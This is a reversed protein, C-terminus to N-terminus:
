FFFKKVFLAILSVGGVASLTVLLNPGDDVSQSANASLLGPDVLVTNTASNKLEEKNESKKGFTKVLNVAPEKENKNEEILVVTTSTAIVIREVPVMISNWSKGIVSPIVYSIAWIKNQKTDTEKLVGGNETQQSAFYDLPGKNNKKWDLGLINMAQVVWSTSSVNGWGGDEFQLNQLYLSARNISDMVSSVDRYQYLASIAAATMDVSEDWSGDAKQRSLIFKIDKLIVEDSSNYGSSSLPIIAFIDDSDLNSDGFQVGDFSKIIAEVYNVGNYSYPNQGLSLLAMAHRENETVFTSVTNNKSYYDLLKIESSSTTSASGLAIAAWDSYMGSQAFSGDSDQNNLLYTLAASIDFIKTSTEAM